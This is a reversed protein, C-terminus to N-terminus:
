CEADGSPPVNGQRSESIEPESEGQHVPLYEPLPPPAPQPDDTHPYYVPPLTLVTASSRQPRHGPTYNLSGHGDRALCIGGDVSQRNERAEVIQEIRELDETDGGSETSPILEATHLEDDDEATPIPSTTNADPTQVVPELLGQEVAIEHAGDSHGEGSQISQTIITAVM